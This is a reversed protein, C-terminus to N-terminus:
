SIEPKYCSRSINFWLNCMPFNHYQQVSIYFKQWLCSITKCPTCTVLKLLVLVSHFCVKQLPIKWSSSSTMWNCFIGYTESLWFIKDDQECCDVVSGQGSGIGGVCQCGLIWKYYKKEDKQPKRITEKRCTKQSYNQFCKEGKGHM